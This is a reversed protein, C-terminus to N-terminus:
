RTFTLTEDGEVSIFNNTVIVWDGRQMCELTVVTRPQNAPFRVSSEFGPDAFYTIRDGFRFGDVVRVSNM